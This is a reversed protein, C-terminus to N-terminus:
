ESDNFFDERARKESDTESGRFISLEDMTAQLVEGLYKVHQDKDSIEELLMRKEEELALAYTEQGIYECALGEISYKLEKLEKELNDKGFHDGLVTELTGFLYELKGDIDQLRKGLSLNGEKSDEEARRQLAYGIIAGVYISPLNM